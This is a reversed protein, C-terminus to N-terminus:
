DRQEKVGVPHPKYTVTTVAYEATEYLSLVGTLSTEQALSAMSTAASRSCRGELLSLVATTDVLLL